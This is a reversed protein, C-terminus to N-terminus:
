IRYEIDSTSVFEYDKPFDSSCRDQPEIMEYNPQTPPILEVRHKDNFALRQDTGHVERLENVRQPREHLRSILYQQWTKKVALKIFESPILSIKCTVPANYGLMLQQTRDISASKIAKKNKYEKLTNEWYGAYKDALTVVVREDSALKDAGVAKLVKEVFFLEKAEDTWQGNVRLVLKSM